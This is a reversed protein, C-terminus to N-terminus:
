VIRFILIWILLLLVFSHLLHHELSLPPLDELSPLQVIMLIIELVHGPHKPLLDVVPLRHLQHMNVGPVEQLM